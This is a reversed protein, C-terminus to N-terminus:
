QLRHELRREPVKHKRHELRREPVKHKIKDHLKVHVCMSPQNPKILWNWDHFVQQFQHLPSKFATAEIGGFRSDFNPEDGGGEQLKREGWKWWSGDFFMKPCFATCIDFHVIYIKYFFIGGIKWQACASGVMYLSLLCLIENTVGFMTLMTTLFFYCRYHSQAVTATM